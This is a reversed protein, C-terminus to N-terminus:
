SRAAGPRGRRRDAIGAYLSAYRGVCAHLDFKEVIRGRAALSRRLREAEPASLATQLAAALGGADASPVVWGTAAVIDRSDGCDTVVCPVGCSMAEAVANPFGEGFSSASVAVDLSAQLRPMDPRVGLLHFREPAGTREIAEVLARNALDIQPGCLVFHPRPERAAVEAAARVFTMHDKQPDFRAFLGVLQVDGPLGLEARVSSPADADPAFRSSDIGNPIVSMRGGDYGLERHVAAGASSNVVIHAPVARSLRACAWAAFRTGRKNHGRRLDTHRVNWVVPLRAGAAALGGVLDAHYLWTQVLDAGSRRLIRALRVVAVPNPARRNMGLAVVPTDAAAIDAGVEGADTLSVVQQRFRARDLVRTLQQLQTQAGGVPLGTIVHVIGIRGTTM